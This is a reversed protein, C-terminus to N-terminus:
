MQVTALHISNGKGVIYIHFAVSNVLFVKLFVHFNTSPLAYFDKNSLLEIARFQNANNIILGM